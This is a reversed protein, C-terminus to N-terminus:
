ESLSRSLAVATQIVIPALGQVRTEPMREVPASVSVAAFVRGRADSVPAGVCKVGIDNEENDVAYGLRRVKELEALLAAETTITNATLRHLGESIVKKVLAMEQFALFAKGVGTCYIPATLLTTLTSSAMEEREVCVMQSGDFLHFHIVEGTIQQLRAVHPHARKSTELSALVSNGYHFLRLGLRYGQRRGDQDLMGIDRLSSVIRHVTTKPMGTAAALEAVTMVPKKRTFSDLVLGVKGLSKARAGRGESDAVEDRDIAAASFSELKM